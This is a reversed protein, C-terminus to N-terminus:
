LHHHRQSLPLDLLSLFSKVSGQVTVALCDSATSRGVKLAPYNAM